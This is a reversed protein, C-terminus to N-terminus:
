KNCCICSIALDGRAIMVGVTKTQMATVLIGILNKYALQTEIKLVIGEEIEQPSAGPYTITILINKSETLPFFSSKLSLMGVIGFVVFALIFVNVAMHYKIFYSIVKRM